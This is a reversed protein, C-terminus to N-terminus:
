PEQMSEYSYVLDFGGGCDYSIFFFQWFLNGSSRIMMSIRQHMTTTMTMM